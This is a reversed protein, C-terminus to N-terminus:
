QYSWIRAYDILVHGSTGAPPLGAPSVTFQLTWRMPTNPIRETDECVLVGDLYLRVRGPTWETVTTHWAGSFPVGTACAKQDAGSTAGQHHIFGHITGTLNGEPWDIEGDRPWQESKPWLLPVAYYGPIADAKWRLEYRGYLQGNTGDSFIPTSAAMLWQGGENHLWLDMFGDHISVVKEPYYYGGLTSWPYPYSTWRSSVAAPFSGLDVDQDFDDSFRLTWASPSPSCSPHTPHRACWGAPKAGLLILLMAALLAARKM